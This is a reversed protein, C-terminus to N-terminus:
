AAVEASNKGRIVEVTLENESPDGDYKSKWFGMVDSAIKGLKRRTGYNVRGIIEGVPCGGSQTVTMTQGEVEAECYTGLDLIKITTKM